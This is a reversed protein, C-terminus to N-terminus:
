FILMYLGTVILAGGGILLAVAATAHGRRRFVFSLAVDMAGLGLLMLPLMQDPNM